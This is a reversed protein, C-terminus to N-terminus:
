GSQRFNENQILQATIKRVILIFSGVFAWGEM